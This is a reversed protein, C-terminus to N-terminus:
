GDDHDEKIGKKMKHIDRRMEAVASGITTQTSDHAGIANIMRRKADDIRNLKALLNDLDSQYIMM